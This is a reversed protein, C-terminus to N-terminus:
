SEKNAQYESWERFDYMRFIYALLEALVRNSMARLIANDITEKGLHQVALNYAEEAEDDEVIWGESEAETIQTAEMIAKEIMGRLAAESLKITKKM